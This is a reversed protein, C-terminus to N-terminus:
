VSAIFMDVYQWDLAASTVDVPSKSGFNYLLDELTAM